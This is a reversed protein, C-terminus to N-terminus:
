VWVTGPDPLPNAPPLNEPLPNNDRMYELISMIELLQETDTDLATIRAAVQGALGTLADKVGQDAAADKAAGILDLVGNLAQRQGSITTLRDNVADMATAIQQQTLGAPQPLGSLSTDPQGLAAQIAALQDPSLVVAPPAPGPPPPITDAPPPVPVPAPMVVTAAAATGDLCHRVELAETTPAFRRRNM